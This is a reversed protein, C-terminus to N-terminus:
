INQIEKRSRLREWAKDFVTITFKNSLLKEKVEAKVGSKGAIQKPLQKAIYGLEGIVRLIENEQFTQQLPPKEANKHELDVTTSDGIFGRYYDKQVNGDEDTRNAHGQYTQMDCRKFVHTGKGWDNLQELTSFYEHLETTDNGVQIELGNLNCIKLRKKRIEDLLDSCINKNASKYTPKHYTATGGLTAKHTAMAEAVFLLPMAIESSPVTITYEM